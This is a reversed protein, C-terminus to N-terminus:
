ERKKASFFLNFMKTGLWRPIVPNGTSGSFLGDGKSVVEDYGFRIWAELEDVFPRDSMQATNGQVVYELVKEVKAPETLMLLHVGNGSGASELSKLDENSVKRSDYEARTCQRQPITNFLQSTVAKSPELTIKVSDAIAADFSVEGHKGFAQAAQILNETACGLSVFM